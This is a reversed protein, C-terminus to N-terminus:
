APPLALWPEAQRAYGLYLPHRPHGEKTLGLHWLALNERRLMAEVAPGRGQYAGHVGWACVVQGAQRALRTLVADNEAGVPDPARKLDAPLTARFAFVNAVSFAPYGWHRARAECRGVTPDNALETATSPNLMIFLVGAGDGWRRTLEYRHAEDASYVAHSECGPSVHRRTIM